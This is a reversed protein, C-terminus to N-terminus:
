YRKKNANGCGFNNCRTEFGKGIVEMDLQSNIMDSIMKRMLASDDAVLVTIKEYM